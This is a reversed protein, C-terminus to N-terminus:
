SSSVTLPLLRFEPVVKLTISGFQDYLMTKTRNDADTEKFLNSIRGM